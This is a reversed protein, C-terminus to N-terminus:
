NLTNRIGEVMVKLKTHYQEETASVKHAENIKNVFAKIFAETNINQGTAEALADSILNALEEPSTTRAEIAADLTDALKALHPKSEPYEELLATCSQSIGAEIMTNNMAEDEGFWSFMGACCILVGMAIAVWNWTKSQKKPETTTEM